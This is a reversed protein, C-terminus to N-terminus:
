KLRYGNLRFLFKYFIRKYKPRTKNLFEQPNNRAEIEITDAHILLSFYIILIYELWIM